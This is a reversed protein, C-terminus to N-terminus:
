QISNAHWGKTVEARISDGVKKDGNIKVTKNNVHLRVRTGTYEEVDYYPGSIKVVKGSITRFAPGASTDTPMAPGRTVASGTAGTSRNPTPGACAAVGLAFALTVVMATLIDRTQEM